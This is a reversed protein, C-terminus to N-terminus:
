NEREFHTRSPLSVGSSAVMAFGCALIRTPFIGIGTSPINQRVAFTPASAAIM